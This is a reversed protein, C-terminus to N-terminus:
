TFSREVSEKVVKEYDRIARSDNFRMEAMKALTPGFLPRIKAREFPEEVWTAEQLREYINSRNHIPKALGTWKDQGSTDAKQYFGGYGSGVVTKYGNSRKVLVQVAQATKKKVLRFKGNPKLLLFRSNAAVSVVRFPFDVLRIAQTDYILDFSVSNRDSRVSRVKNGLFVSDLSTPAAYVQSISNKLKKHIDLAAQELIPSLRKNIERVSYNEKLKQIDSLSVTAKFM